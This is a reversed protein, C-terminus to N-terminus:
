GARRTLETGQRAQPPRVDAVDELTSNHRLQGRTTHVGRTRKPHISSHPLLHWAIPDPLYKMDLGGRDVIRKLNHHDLRKRTCGSRSLRARCQIDEVRTEREVDDGPGLM